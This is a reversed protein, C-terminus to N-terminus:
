TAIKFDIVNLRAWDKGMKLDAYLDGQVGRKYFGEREVDRDLIEYPKGTSDEFRVVLYEGGGEKKSEKKECGRIEVSEIKVKM